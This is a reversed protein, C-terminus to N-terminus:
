YRAIEREPLSPEFLAQALEAKETPSLTILIGKDGASAQLYAFGSSDTSVSLSKDGHGAFTDTIMLFEM